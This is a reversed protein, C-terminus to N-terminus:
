GYQSHMKNRKAYSIIPVMEKTDGSKSLALLIDSNQIAGLDGHNAESCNIYQSPSGTSSLTASLKLGIFGSKGIGTIIIRGKNEIDSVIPTLTVTESTDGVEPTDAIIALVRFSDLKAYKKFNDDGCSIILVITLLCLIYNM